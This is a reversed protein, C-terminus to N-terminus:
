VRLLRCISKVPREPFPLNMFGWRSLWRECCCLVLRTIESTLFGMQRAIIEAAVRVVTLHRRRVALALEEAESMLRKVEPDVVRVERKWRKADAHVSLWPLVDTNPAICYYGSELYVYVDPLVTQLPTNDHQRGPAPNLSGILQKTRLLEKETCALRRQLVENNVAFWDQWHCNILLLALERTRSGQREKLQLWFCEKLSRAGIGNGCVAQVLKVGTEWQEHYRKFFPVSEPIVENISDPIRGRDDIAEVVFALCTVLPEDLRLTALEAALREKFSELQTEELQEPGNSFLQSNENNYPSELRIRIPASM